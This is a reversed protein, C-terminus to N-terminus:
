GGEVPPIVAVTDGNKLETDLSKYEMNVAFMSNELIDCLKPNEKLLFMKLDNTNSGKFEIEISGQKMITKAEGFFLLNVKM